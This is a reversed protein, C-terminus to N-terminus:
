GRARDEDRLIRRLRIMSSFGEIARRGVPSRAPRLEVVTAPLERITLGARGARCVLEVDYISGGLRCAGVLPAVTSRRLAKMGHADSVPLGVMLKLLTTFGFTLVRRVLPRRDDADPSRKSAVVVDAGHGLILAAAADFFDLDFYDVDFCVVVDGRAENFGAALAAGYDGVPRTLVRITAFQSALDRAIRLTEDTSGNEVIVMEYTVGRQSLGNALHRVTSGLLGEENHAPVVLSFQPRRAGEHSGTMEMM